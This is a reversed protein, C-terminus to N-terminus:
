GEWEASSWAWTHVHWFLLGFCARAGTWSRAIRAMYLECVFSADDDESLIDLMM